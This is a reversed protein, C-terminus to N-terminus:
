DIYCSHVGLVIGDRGHGVKIYKRSYQVKIYGHIVLRCFLAIFKLKADQRLKCLKRKGKSVMCACLKAHSCIHSFCIQKECM